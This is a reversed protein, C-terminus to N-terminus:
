QTEALRNTLVWAATSAQRRARTLRKDDTYPNVVLEADMLGELADLAAQAAERLRALDEKTRAHAEGEERAADFHRTNAQVLTKGSERLRRAEERAEALLQAEVDRENM